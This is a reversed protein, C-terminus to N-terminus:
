AAYIAGHQRDRGDSAPVPGPSRELDRQAQGPVRRRECRHALAAPMQERQESVPEAPRPGIRALRGLPRIRVVPKGSRRLHRGGLGPAVQGALCLVERQAGPVPGIQRAVALQPADQPGAGDPGALARAGPRGAVAAVGTVGAVRTVGAVQTVMDLRALV